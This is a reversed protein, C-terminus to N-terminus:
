ATVGYWALANDHCLAALDDKNCLETITQWFTPYDFRWTCLPFNSALMVRQAGFISVAQTIASAINGPQWQRNVMEWGSLKIAINPSQALLKLNELWETTLTGNAAGSLGHNIIIQLGCHLSCINRLMAIARTDCLNLQADFSLGADALLGFAHRARTCSLVSQAEDDLIHRVGTISQRATLHSLTQAFDPAQLNAFGVSRFPLTCNTELWDIERWPETNSFGAEIHVFGALSFPSSLALDAQTFPRAIAPKDPWFPPNDPKLWAYDGEDTAFLHVHPDIINITV